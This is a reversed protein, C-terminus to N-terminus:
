RRDPFSLSNTFTPKFYILILIFPTKLELHIEQHMPFRVSAILHTLVIYSTPLLRRMTMYAKKSVPQVRCLHTPLRTGSAGLYGGILALKIGREAGREGRGLFPLM